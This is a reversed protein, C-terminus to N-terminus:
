RSTRHRIQSWEPTDSKKVKMPLLAVLAPLLTISFMWAAAIGVATINGLHWFPPADSFNLALFGVITTLSTIAVALFNLRMAEPLADLKSMGERMLGRLSVLIHISDAVAVM